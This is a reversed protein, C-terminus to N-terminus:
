VMIEPFTKKGWIPFNKIQKNRHSKRRNTVSPSIHVLLKFFFFDSYRSLHHLLFTEHYFPVQRGNDNHACLESHDWFASESGSLFSVMYFFSPCWMKSVNNLLICKTDKRVFRFEKLEDNFSKVLNSLQFDSKSLLILELSCKEM